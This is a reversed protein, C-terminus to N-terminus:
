CLNPVSRGSTRIQDFIPTGCVLRECIITLTQKASQSNNVPNNHIFETLENWSRITDGSLAQIFWPRIEDKWMTAYKSLGAECLDFWWLLYNPFSVITARGAKLDILKSESSNACAIANRVLKLDTALLPELDIGYNLMRSHANLDYIISVLDKCFGELSTAM